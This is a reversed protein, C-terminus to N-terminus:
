INVNRPLGIATPQDAVNVNIATPAPVGSTIIPANPQPGTTVYIDGEDNLSQSPNAVFEPPAPQVIVEAAAAGETNVQESGQRQVDLLFTDGAVPLELSPVEQDSPDDRNIVIYNTGFGTIIRSAGQDNATTTDDAFVIERGLMTVPYSTLAPPGVVLLYRTTSAGALTWLNDADYVALVTCLVQVAESFNTQFSERPGIVTFESPSVFKKGAAPNGPDVPQWVGQGLVQEDVPVEVVDPVYVANSRPVPLTETVVVTAPTPFVQATVGNAAPPYGQAGAQVLVGEQEPVIQVSGGNPNPNGYAQEAVSVLGPNNVDM